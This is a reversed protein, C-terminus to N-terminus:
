SCRLKQLANVKEMYPAHYFGDDMENAVLSHIGQNEVNKSKSRTMIHQEESQTEQLGYNNRELYEPQTRKMKGSSSFYFPREVTVAFTSIKGSPLVVDLENEHVRVPEYTKRGITERHLFFKIVM